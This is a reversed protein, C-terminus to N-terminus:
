PKSSNIINSVTLWPAIDQWPYNNASWLFGFDTFSNTIKSVVSWSRTENTWTKTITAWTDSGLIKSSNSLSTTPKSINTIM